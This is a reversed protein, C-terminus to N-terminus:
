LKGKVISVSLNFVALQPEPGKMNCSVFVSSKFVMDGIAGPFEQSMFCFNIFEPSFTIFFTVGQNGELDM